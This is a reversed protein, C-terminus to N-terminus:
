RRGRPEIPFRGIRMRTETVRLELWQENKAILPLLERLINVMGAMVKEDRYIEANLPARVGKRLSNVLVTPLAIFAAVTAAAGVYHPLVAILACVGTALIAAVAIREVLLYRRYRDRAGDVTALLAEAERLSREFDDGSAYQPRM